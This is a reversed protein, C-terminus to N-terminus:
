TRIIKIYMYYYSISVFYRNRVRTRTIYIYTRQLTIIYFTMFDVDRQYISPYSRLITVLFTVFARKKISKSASKLSNQPQKSGIKTNNWHNRNSQTFSGNSEVINREPHCHQSIAPNTHSTIRRRSMLSRLDDSRKKPHCYQSYNPFNDFLCM